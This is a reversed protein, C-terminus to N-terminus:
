QQSSDPGRRHFRGAPKDSRGRRWNAGSRGSDSPLRRAPLAFQLRSQISTAWQGSPEAVFWEGQKGGSRQAFLLDDGLGVFGLDRELRHGVAALHDLVVAVDAQGQAIMRQGEQPLVQGALGVFGAVQGAGDAVHLEDADGPDDEDTLLGAQGLPDHGDRQFVLRADGVQHDPGVRQPSGRVM